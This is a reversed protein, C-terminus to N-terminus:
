VSNKSNEHSTFNMFFKENMIGHTCCYVTTTDRYKILTRTLTLTVNIIHTHTDNTMKHASSEVLFEKKLVAFMMSTIPSHNFIYQFSVM